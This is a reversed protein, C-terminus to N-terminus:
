LVLVCPVSCDFSRTLLIVMIESDEMLSIMIVSRGAVAWGPHSRRALDHELVSHLWLAWAVLKSTASRGGRKLALTRM